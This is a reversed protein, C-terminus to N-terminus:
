AGAIVDAFLVVNVTPVSPVKVTVALPNGTGERPRLPGGRGVPTVNSAAVPTSDPVGAAPVPPVYTIVKLAVFTAPLAVCTNVSVTFSAGDIVLAFLVVNTTPLAPVNVTVAVPKGAGDNLSVPESGVPTVKSTAVCMREPVGPAPVPPVYEM